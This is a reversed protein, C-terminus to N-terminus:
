PVRRYQAELRARPKERKGQYAAAATNGVLEVAQM